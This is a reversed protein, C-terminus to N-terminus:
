ASLVLECNGICDELQFIASFLMFADEILVNADEHSHAQAAVPVSHREVCSLSAWHQTSCQGGDASVVTQLSWRRCQGGDARVVMEDAALEM